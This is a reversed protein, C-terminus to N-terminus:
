RKLHFLSSRLDFYLHVLARLGNSSLCMTIATMMPMGATANRKGMKRCNRIRKMLNMNNIKAQATRKTVSVSPRYLGAPAGSFRPEPLSLAVPVLSRFLWPPPGYESETDRKKAGEGLFSGFDIDAWIQNSDPPTYDSLSAFPKSKPQKVSSYQQSQPMVGLAM